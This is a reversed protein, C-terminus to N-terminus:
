EDFDAFGLHQRYAKRQRKRDFQETISEWKAAVSALVEEASSESSVAQEIEHDLTLLYDDIGPIRPLLFCNDASLLKTVAATAGEGVNQGALWKRAKAVQSTRFWITGESRQSLQISADGSALWLLLKFASASNRSSRLVSVSRGAFGLMTAPEEADNAEWTERSARYVKSAKPLPLFDIAAGEGAKEYSHSTPWAIGFQNEDEESKDSRYVALLEDLAKVFPPSEIRPKMSRPDFLVAIDSNPPLYSVARVLLEVAWRQQLEPTRSPLGFPLDQWQRVEKAPLADSPCSLMLPPEGLSLAYIEGGFRMTRNRVLPLLDGFDFQPNKLLSNRIPRLWQRDVLTGVYRSHYIVLDASVSEAALLEKSSMESLVMQGGSRESWEGRLLNIGAALKEDDIVVINLKVAARTTPTKALSEVTAAPKQNCGITAVAACVLCLWLTRLM